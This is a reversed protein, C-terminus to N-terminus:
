SYENNNYLMRVPKFHHSDNNWHALHCLSNSSLQVRADLRQSASQCTMEVVAAGVVVLVIDVRSM